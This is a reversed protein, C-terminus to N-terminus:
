RYTLIAPFEACHAPDLQELVDRSWGVVKKKCLRCELYETAMFYWGDIDLVRRVTKYLSCSTLHQGTRHCNPQRCLLRFSWIRYPMWLFFPRTFPAPSAPPQHFVPRPAPPHWWLQLSDILVPRGDKNRRFLARSLWEHQEKPLQAKWAQPLPVDQRRMSWQVPWSSQTQPSLLQPLRRRPARFPLPSRPPCLAPCPRSHM